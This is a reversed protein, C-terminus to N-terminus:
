ALEFIGLEEHLDPHTWLRRDNTGDPNILRIETSGRVYAINGASQASVLTSLSIIILLSSTLARYIM